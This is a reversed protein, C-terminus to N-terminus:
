VLDITLGAHYGSTGRAHVAVGGGLVKFHISLSESGCSHGENPEIRLQFGHSSFFFYNYKSEILLSFCLFM